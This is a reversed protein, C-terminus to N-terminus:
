IKTGRVISVTTLHNPARKQTTVYSVIFVWVCNQISTYTVITSPNAWRSTAICFSAGFWKVYCSDRYDSSNLNLHYSTILCTMTGSMIWIYRGIRCLLASSLEAQCCACPSVAEPTWRGWNLANLQKDWNWFTALCMLKGVVSLDQKLLFLHFCAQKLSPIHCYADRLIMEDTTVGNIIIQKNLHDEWGPLSGCPSIYVLSAVVALRERVFM